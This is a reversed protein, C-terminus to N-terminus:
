VRGVPRRRHRHRHVPRHATCVSRCWAPPGDDGVRAAQEGL